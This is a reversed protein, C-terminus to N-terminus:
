GNRLTGQFFDYLHSKKINELFDDNCYISIEAQNKKARDVMIALSYLNKILIDKSDHLYILIRSGSSVDCEKLYKDIDENLLDEQSLHILFKDKTHVFSGM